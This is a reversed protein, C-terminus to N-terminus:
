KVIKEYIFKHKNIGYENLLTGSKKFDLNVLFEEHINTENLVGEIHAQIKIIDKKCINNKIDDICVNFFKQIEKSDINSYINLLEIKYISIHRNLENTFTLLCVEKNTKDKLIYYEQLYNFLNDRIKIPLLHQTDCNPNYDITNNIIYTNEKSSLISLLHNLDGEGCRHITYNESFKLNKGLYMVDEMNCHIIGNRRLALLLSIVDELVKKHNDENFEKMLKNIIDNITNKGNCLELIKMTTENIIKLDNFTKNPPIILASNNLENRLFTKKKLVPIVNLNM